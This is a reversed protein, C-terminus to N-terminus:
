TTWSLEYLRADSLDRWDAPFTRVRRMVDDTEFVLTPGARRDLTPAHEYVLWRVENVVIVRADERTTGFAFTV